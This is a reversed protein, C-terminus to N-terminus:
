AIKQYLIGERKKCIEIYSTITLTKPLKMAYEDGTQNMSFPIWILHFHGPAASNEYFSWENTKVLKWIIEHMIWQVGDCSFPMAIMEHSVSLIVLFWPANGRVIMEM